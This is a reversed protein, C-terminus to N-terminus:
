RHNRRRQTATRAEAVLSTVPDKSALKYSAVVLPLAVADMDIRFTEWAEQVASVDILAGNDQEGEGVYPIFIRGRHSRGRHGTKFKVIGAVQPIGNGTGGGTWKAPNGTTFTDTADSGDLFIVDVSAVHIGTFAWDWMAQTVNDNIENYVDGAQREGAEDHFHLVNHALPAGGSTWNLTVRVVNTITPLPAM